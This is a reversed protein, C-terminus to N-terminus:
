APRRLAQQNDITERRDIPVIDSLRERVAAKTIALPLGSEESWAEAWEDPNKAGWAFAKKLRAM